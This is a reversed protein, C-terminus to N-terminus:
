IILSMLLLSLVMLVKQLMSEFRLLVNDASLSEPTEFVGQARFVPQGDMLRIDLLIKKGPPNRVPDSLMIGNEEFRGYFRDVFEGVSSCSINMVVLQYEAQDSGPPLKGNNNSM